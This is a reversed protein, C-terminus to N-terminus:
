SEGGPTDDSGLHTTHNVVSRLMYALANALATAERLYAAAALATQGAPVANPGGRRDDYLTPEGAQAELFAALQMLLQPMNAVAGHLFGVLSNAASAYPLASPQHGPDTAHNLFRVLEAMARGAEVTMHGDHPGDINWHTAIVDDGRFEDYHGSM